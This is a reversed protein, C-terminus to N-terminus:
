YPRRTELHYKVYLTLYRFYTYLTKGKAHKTTLSATKVFFFDGERKHIKSKARDSLRILWLVTFADNESLMLNVIFQYLLFHFLPMIILFIIIIIAHHM